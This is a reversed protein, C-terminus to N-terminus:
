LTTQARAYGAPQLNTRANSHPIRDGSSSPITGQSHASPKRAPTISSFHDPQARRSGRFQTVNWAIM